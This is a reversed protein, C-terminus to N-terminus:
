IFYINVFIGRVFFIGINFINYNIGSVYFFYVIGYFIDYMFFFVIIVNLVFFVFFVVRFISFKICNICFFDIIYFIIIECIIKVVCYM